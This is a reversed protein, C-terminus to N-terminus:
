PLISVDQGSRRVVAHRRALGTTDQALSPDLVIRVVDGKRAPGFQPQQGYGSVEAM